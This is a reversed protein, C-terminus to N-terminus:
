GRGRCERRLSLTQQATAKGATLFRSQQMRASEVTDQMYMIHKHNNKLLFEGSYRAHVSIQKNEPDFSCCRCALLHVHLACHLTRSFCIHAVEIIMICIVSVKTRM